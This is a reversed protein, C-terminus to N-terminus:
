AVGEKFFIAVFDLGCVDVVGGWADFVDFVATIWKRAGEIKVDFVDM